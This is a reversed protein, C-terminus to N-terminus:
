WLGWGIVVYVLVIAAGQLRVVGRAIGGEGNDLRRISAAMWFLSMAVFASLAEPAPHAQWLNLGERQLFRAGVYYLREVCLCTLFFIVPEIMPDFRRPNADPVWARRVMLANWFACGASLILAVHSALTLANWQLDM